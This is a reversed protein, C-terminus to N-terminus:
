SPSILTHACPVPAGPEYPVHPRPRQVTRGPSGDGCVRGHLKERGAALLVAGTRWGRVMPPQAGGRSRRRTQREGKINMLRLFAMMEEGPQQDPTISYTM